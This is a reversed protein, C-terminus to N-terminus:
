ANVDEWAKPDAAYSCWGKLVELRERLDRYKNESVLGAIRTAEILGETYHYQGWDGCKKTEQLAIHIVDLLRDVGPKPERDTQRILALAADERCDAIMYGREMDALVEGPTKYYVEKPEPFFKCCHWAYCPAKVPLVLCRGDQLADLVSRLKETDM